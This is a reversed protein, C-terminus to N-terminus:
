AQRAAWAGPGTRIAADRLGTSARNIQLGANPPVFHEVAAAITCVLIALVISPAFRGLKVM